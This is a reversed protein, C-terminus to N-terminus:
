KKNGNYILFCAFLFLIVFSTVFMIKYIDISDEVVIEDVINSSLIDKKYFSSNKTLEVM